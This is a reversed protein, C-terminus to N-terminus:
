AIKVGGEAVRGHGVGEARDDMSQYRVSAPQPGKIVGRALAAMLDPSELQEILGRELDTMPAGGAKQRAAIKARASLAQQQRPSLAQTATPPPAPKPSAVEIEAEPEPEPEPHLQPGHAVMGRARAAAVAPDAPVDRLDIKKGAPQPEPEAEASTATTIEDDEFTIEDGLDSPAGRPTGMDPLPAPAAPPRPTSPQREEREIQTSPPSFYDAGVQGLTKARRMQEHFARKEGEWTVQWDGPRKESTQLWRFITTRDVHAIRAVEAVYVHDVTAEIIEIMKAESKEVM